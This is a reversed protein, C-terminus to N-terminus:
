APIALPVYNILIEEALALTSDVVPLPSEMQSLVIPLETCGAILVEARSNILQGMCQKLLEQKETLCGSKISYIVEMIQNKFEESMPVIELGAPIFVRDYIGFDCTGRTALLGIRSAGPFDRLLRNRTAEIISIFPLDTKERLEEIFYHATNCPMCLATAGMQELRQASQQLFPLPSEGKGMLFATRDPIQPFNDILLHLHDQDNRAPTLAIIKQFLDLTAGPGMGGIIGIAKM